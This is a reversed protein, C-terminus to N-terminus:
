KKKRSMERIHIVVYEEGEEADDLLSFRPSLHAELDLQADFQELIEGWMKRNPQM